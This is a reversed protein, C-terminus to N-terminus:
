RFLKSLAFTLLFGGGKNRRNGRLSLMARHGGHGRHEGEPVRGIWVVGEHKVRHRLVFDIQAAITEFMPQFINLRQILPRQPALQVNRCDRNM